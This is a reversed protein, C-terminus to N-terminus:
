FSIWFALRVMIDQYCSSSIDILAKIQAISSHYRLSKSFCSNGECKNIPTEDLFDHAISTYGIGPIYVYSKYYTIILIDLMKINWYYMLEGNEFDCHVELPPLNGAGDPDIVYRGSEIAGKLKHM